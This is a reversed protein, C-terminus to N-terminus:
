DDGHNEEWFNERSEPLLAGIEKVKKSLAIRTLSEIPLEVFIKIRRELVVFASVFALQQKEPSASVPDAVGWHANIPQGPWFPCAERAANDCVTIVFDMDPAGPVAFQDWSKSSPNGVPVKMNELTKVAAPNVQGAPLSGASFARFKGEGYFNLLAEAIISRASNGTCLFLVNFIRDSM